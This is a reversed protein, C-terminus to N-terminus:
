LHYNNICNCGKFWDQLNNQEIIDEPIYYVDVTSNINSIGVNMKKCNLKEPLTDVYYKVADVSIGKISDDSQERIYGNKRNIEQM